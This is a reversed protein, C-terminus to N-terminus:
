DMLTDNGALRVRWNNIDKLRQDKLVGVKIAFNANGAGVFFLKRLKRLTNEDTSAVQVGDIRKGFKGLSILYIDAETLTSKKSIGWEMVSGLTINKFGRSSASEFFEEKTIFFAEIINNKKIVFLRRPIDKETMKYKLNWEIWEKNHYEAFPHEDEMIIREVDDPVYNCEEVKYNGLTLCTWAKLLGRHLWLGFDVLWILPYTMCNETKLVSQVVSRSKRLYIMRPYEFVTYKLARYLGIAMQSIGVFYYNKLPHLRSMKLFIDGGVNEKRYDEHSYLYSANQASYVEGDITMRGTFTNVCGVVVGNDHAIIQCVEDEKYGSPNALFAKKMEPNLSSSIGHPDTLKIRPSSLLEGFTLNYFEVM